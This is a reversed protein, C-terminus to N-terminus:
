ATDDNEEMIYGLREMMIELRNIDGPTPDETFTFELGGQVAKITVRKKFRKTLIAGLVALSPRDIFKVTTKSM